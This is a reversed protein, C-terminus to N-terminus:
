YVATWSDQCILARPACSCKITDFHEASSVRLPLVVTSGKPQAPLVVRPVARQTYEQLFERRDYRLSNQLILRIQCLGHDGLSLRPDVRMRRMRPVERRRREAEEGLRETVKGRASSQLFNQLLEALLWWSTASARNHKREDASRSVILYPQASVSKDLSSPPQASGAAWVSPQQETKATSHAICYKRRCSM